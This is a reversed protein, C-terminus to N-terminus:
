TQLSLLDGTISGPEDRRRLMVNIDDVTRTGEYWSLIAADARDPSPVGRAKMEDKSEIRIRRQSADLRWKRGQLQAALLLDDSDLDILGAELDERFSWWAEANKNVFRGPDHAQEGGSFPQVRFGQNALPDYVGAGLGVVDIQMPRWRDAELLVQVRARSTDTDQKRWAMELRIMGGRNRYVCTEDTGYRAVDMGFRGPDRIANGSLDREQAERIMRPTIIVDDATEPFEGLVKSIYLPSEVGWEREREEVWLGSVLSERMQEPIKEGTFAPTDFASTKLVNWGSGPQCVKAFHTTPDDPNGIALVRSAENTVLTDVATWLWEPIGCAEDLVVLVYRAHIGQFAARAQDADIYDAPKRGFAVLEGGITWEPIAGTTIRGRLGAKRHARSLERWLIARVQPGSPATSVAIAEGLPHGDIWWAILRAASFSKGPGHCAKWATYRNTIVSRMLRVQDSWLHEDLEDRIWVVPDQPLPREPEPTLRRRVALSTGRPLGSTM